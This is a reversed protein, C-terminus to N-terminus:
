QRTEGIQIKVKGELSRQAATTRWSAYRGMKEGNNVLLLSKMQYSLCSKNKKWLIKQGSAMHKAASCCWPVNRKDGTSALERVGSSITTDNQPKPPSLHILQMKSFPWIFSLHIKLDGQHFLVSICVLELDANSLLLLLILFYLYSLRQQTKSTKKRLLQTKNTEQQFIEFAYLWM